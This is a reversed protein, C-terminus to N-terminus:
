QGHISQLCNLMMEEYYNRLSRLHRLRLWRLNESAKFSTLSGQLVVSTNIPFLIQKEREMRSHMSKVKLTRNKGESDWVRQAARLPPTAAPVRPERERRISRFGEGRASVPITSETLQGDFLKSFCMGSGTQRHPHKTTCVGLLSTLGPGLVM